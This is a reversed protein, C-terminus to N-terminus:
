EGRRQEASPWRVGSARRREGVFSGRRDPRHLRERKRARRAVDGDVPQALSARVDPDGEATVADSETLRAKDGFRM